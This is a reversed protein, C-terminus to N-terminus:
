GINMTIGMIEEGLCSAQLPACPLLLLSSLAFHMSGLSRLWPKGVVAQEATLL